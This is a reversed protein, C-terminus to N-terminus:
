RTSAVVPAHDTLEDVGVSQWADPSGCGGARELVVGAHLALAAKAEFPEEVAGISPM